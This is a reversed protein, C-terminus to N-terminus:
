IIEENIHDRLVVCSESFDEIDDFAILIGLLSETFSERIIKEIGIILAFINLIEKISTPRCICVDELSGYEEHLYL